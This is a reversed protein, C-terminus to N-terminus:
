LRKRMLTVEVRTGGGERALIQIDGGQARVSARAIALGLGSGGTHRARSTELRVYPEFIRERDAEPIGPGRDEIRIVVDTPRVEVSLDVPDDSYRRANDLVNQLARQLAQPRAKVPTEAAGHRRIQAGLLTMDECLLDLLADLDLSVLPETTTGARLFALTHGIMEDMETLDNEIKQKLEDEPLHALRLRMRTIPLRLDHSVGALAHGRVEILRQIDRQMQNFAQAARSVENPGTETLPAQNLNQPLRVAAEVLADLPQTLRRLIWAVGTIVIGGLLLLWGMTQFPWRMPPPLAHRLTLVSGDDLRAQILLAHERHGRAPPQMQWHRDLTWPAQQLLIPAAEPELTREARRDMDDGNIALVQIPIPQELAGHLRQAFQRTMTNEVLVKAGNYMQGIPHHEPQHWPQRFMLHTLPTNMWRALRRREDPATDNQIQIIQAIRQIAYDGLLREGLRARDAVLLSLSLALAAVIGLTLM